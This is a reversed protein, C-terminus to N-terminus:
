GVKQLEQRHFLGSVIEGDADILRYTVPDTLLVSNIVYVTRSWNLRSEKSFLSKMVSVRVKDGEKLNSGKRMFHKFDFYSRYLFLKPLIVNGPYVDRPCEGGLSSHESEVILDLFQTYRGVDKGYIGFM